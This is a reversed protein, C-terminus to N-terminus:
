VAFVLTCEVAVASTVSLTVFSAFTAQVRLMMAQSITAQEFSFIHEVSAWNRREHQLQKFMIVHWFLAALTAIAPLHICVFAVRRAEDPDRIVCLLLVGRVFAFNRSAPSRRLCLSNLLYIRHCLCALYDTYKLM